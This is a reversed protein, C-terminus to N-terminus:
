LLALQQAPRQGNLLVFPIARSTNVGLKQLQRLDRLITTTRAQLIAEVGRPGFGPIRLLAHRDATNINVPSDALNLRAWGLKPDADLPLHGAQSFPLDEFEFGYDRLLFSAQYLRHERWPNEAVQNELPTDKVPSFASFYARQLGLKTLEGTLSLIELDSEGAAGVVFQTVFSPWRNRGQPPPLTRRFNNQLKPMIAATHNRSQCRRRLAIGVRRGVVFAGDLNPRCFMFNQEGQADGVHM